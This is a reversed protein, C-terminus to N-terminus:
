THELRSVDAWVTVCLLVDAPTHQRRCVISVCLLVDYAVGLLVQDGSSVYASTHSTHLVEHAIGLLVPHGSLVHRGKLVENELYIYM